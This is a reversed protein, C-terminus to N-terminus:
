QQKTDLQKENERIYDIVAESFGDIHTWKGYGIGNKFSAVNVLYNRKGFADATEPNCKLDCDQEDTFVITRDASIESAHVFDMCQKLFIGGGGLDGAANRVLDRLAFGSRSPILKTQHVRTGDNGATCYIAVEDCVERVLMALAAAADVRQLESKGGIQGGMSGSVDIILVTKGPIKEQSSLCKLMAVELQPELKPNHVAASVFRFPLVRDVKINQLAGRILDTPVDAQQMNRLNRLLALAGLKEERLLREWSEKKGKGAGASLEVEWTDPTALEGAVLRKWLADQEADRPKAHCLFLVDRLKIANDRNYKALSYENFKGFASALGKKVQASLPQKKDKWYIALFEALEDPRQIVKALTDAVLLKAKKSGRALERVLFLPVHRLKMKERAEVAIAAVNEPDVHKILEAIRAANSEGDEYFEGEWLMNAMVSRRLEQAPNIMAATAGEHTKKTNVAPSNIRAM